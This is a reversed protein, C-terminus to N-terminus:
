KNFKNIFSAYKKGIVSAGLSNFHCGDYRYDNGLNDTNLTLFVRDNNQIISRQSNILSKSTGSDCVSVLAMGIKTKNSTSLFKKFTLQIDKIYTEYYIKNAKKIESEGQHWFVYDIVIGDKKLKKLLFDFKKAFPGRAWDQARTGGKSFGLFVINESFDYDKKLFHITDSSVHGFGGARGDVGALPEKYRSCVGLRWDYTFVNEYSLDSTKEREIINGHNSQGFYGVNISERPCPVIDIFSTSFYSEKPYKKDYNFRNLISMFRIRNIKIAFMSPAIILIFIFILLLFKRM